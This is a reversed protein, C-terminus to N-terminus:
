QELKKKAKALAENMAKTSPKGTHPYLYEEALHEGFQVDAKFKKEQHEGSTRQYFKNYLEIKRRLHQVPFSKDMIAQWTKPNKESFEKYKDELQVQTLSLQDQSIKEITELQKMRIQM